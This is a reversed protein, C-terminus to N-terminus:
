KKKRGLKVEPLGQVLALLADAPLNALARFGARILQSKKVPFGLAFLRVKLDAIQAHEADPMTFSDRVLKPARPPKAPKAPKAAQPSKLTAAVKRKADPTNVARAPKSVKAKAPAVPRSQTEKASGTAPKVAKAAKAPAAKTPEPKEAPAAAPAASLPKTSM